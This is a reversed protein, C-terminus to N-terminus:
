ARPERTLERLWEYQRLNECMLELRLRALEVFPSAPREALQAVAGAAEGRKRLLRAVRDKLRRDGFVAEAIARLSAGADALAYVLEREAAATARTRAM